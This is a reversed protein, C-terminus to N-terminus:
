KWNMQWLYFEKHKVDLQCSKINRCIDSLKDSRCFTKTFFYFLLPAFPRFACPLRVKLKCYPVRRAAFPCGGRHACAPTSTIGAEYFIGDECNKNLLGHLAFAQRVGVAEACAREAHLVHRFAAGFPVDQMGFPCMGCLGTLWPMLFPAMGERRCPGTHTNM